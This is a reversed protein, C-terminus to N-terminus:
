RRAQMADGARTVRSYQRSHRHDASNLAPRRGDIGGATIDTVIAAIDMAIVTIATSTDTIIADRIGTAMAMAMIATVIGTIPSTDTATTAVEIVGTTPVTSTIVRTAPSTGSFRGWPRRVRLPIARRAGARRYRAPDRCGDCDSSIQSTEHHGGDTKNCSEVV